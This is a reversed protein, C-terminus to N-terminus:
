GAGQARAAVTGGCGAQALAALAGVVAGTREQANAAFAARGLELELDQARLADAHLAEVVLIAAFVPAAGALVLATDTLVHAGRVRIAEAVVPAHVSAACFARVVVVTARLARAHVAGAGVALLVEVARRAPQAHISEAALAALVVVALGAGDAVVVLADGLLTLVVAVAAREGFAVVSLADFPCADVVALADLM